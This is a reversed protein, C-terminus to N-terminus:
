FAQLHVLKSYEGDRGILSQHSGREVIRGERMVIIEDAHQITSLRHAIVIATRHRMVRNLAEQVLKESESDLASTAEDLILIPPNKLMARAITLRQRQGGSLKGGRDGILTDYGEPTQMIFEHANAVKAAAVVQERTVDKMGFAINNFITDNFLIAEQTVIGMLARLHGKELDKVNIGDILLEGGTVDYFRPLLDAMTSKGSGSAGVLAVVKGKEISLNIGDLVVKSTNYSFRVNKYTITEKFDMIPIANPKNTITSEVKLIADVRDVAAAGRQVNYVASTFSKAPDIIYYFAALFVLLQAASMEGSFVQRSGYWLLIIVLTVGLFESLPSALDRRRLVKTLLNRYDNNINAFRHMQYKEANFAKIVRLGSLSEEVIALLDGLKSQAQHSSRRLRKGIGGLLFAIIGVLFLVFLTLSSNIYLMVGLSGLLLLPERVLTELVNLISHEIEQVDATIRALLDGKREDSFYALPLSMMKDFVEQRVDRVIGNRVPAMFFVSFYRFLNKLFFLLGIAICIYALAVSQGQHEIMQGMQYQAYELLSKAEWSFQPQVDVKQRQGFLTELFPVFAPIQVVTFVAMLINCLINLAVNRRYKKL